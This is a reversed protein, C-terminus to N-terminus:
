ICINEKILTIKEMKKVPKKPKEPKVPEPILPEPLNTASIPDDLLTGGVFSDRLRKEAFSNILRNEVYDEPNRCRRQGPLPLLPGQPGQNQLNRKHLDTKLHQYKGKKSYKKKCLDCYWYSPKPMPNAPPAPVKKPKIKIKNVM